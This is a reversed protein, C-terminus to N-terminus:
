GTWGRLLKCILWDVPIGSLIYTSYITELGFVWGGVYMWKIQNELDVCCGSM